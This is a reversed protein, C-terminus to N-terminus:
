FEALELADSYAEVAQAINGTDASMVGFVTLAKRQLPRLNAQKALVVASRAPEISLYPQGTVFFFHAGDILADVRISANDTGPIERLCRLLDSVEDSANSSGAESANSSGAKLHAKIIDAANQVVDTGLTSHSATARALAEELERAASRTPAM